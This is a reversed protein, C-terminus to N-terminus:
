LRPALWGLWTDIFDAPFGSDKLQWKFANCLQATKYVNLPEISKFDRIKSEMARLVQERQRLHQSNATTNELPFKKAILLALERGFSQAKDADFWRLM